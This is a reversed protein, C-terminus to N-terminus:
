KLINDIREFYAICVKLTYTNCVKLAHIADELCCLIWEKVNCVYMCVLHEM